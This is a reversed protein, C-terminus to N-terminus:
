ICSVTYLVRSYSSLTDNAVNFAKKNRQFFNYIKILDLVVVYQVCKCNSLDIALNEIENFNLICLKRSGDSQLRQIQRGEPM